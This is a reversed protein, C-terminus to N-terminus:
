ENELDGRDKKEVIANLCCPEHHQGYCISCIMGDKNCHSFFETTIICGIILLQSQKIAIPHLGRATCTWMTWDWEQPQLDHRPRRVLRDSPTKSQFSAM